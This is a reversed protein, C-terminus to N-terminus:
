NTKPKAATEIQELMSKIRANQPDIQLARHLFSRAEATRGQSSYIFALNGYAPVFKPDLALVRLFYGSAEDYNASAMALNASNNLASIYDPDLRLARLFHQKATALAQQKHAFFEGLANHAPAYSPQAASAKRFCDLAAAPQDLQAYLNGLQTLAAANEPLLRLVARYAEVAEERRAMKELVMALQLHALANQPAIELVARFQQLAEELRGRYFYALGLRYFGEENQPDNQLGNRMLALAREFYVQDKNATDYFQLYAMGLRLDAAADKEAFFDKLAPLASAGAPQQAAPEKQIWHETFNVHVVDTTKGQPMHCAVCDGNADHQARPKSRSLVALSHCSVCTENFFSRAVTQVPQHPNHCTICVLKGNSKTYCASLALREGHSAVRLDGAPLHDHVYVSRVEQLRMGPRFDNMRKGSKLIGVVGQLHCQFCVEMQLAPPLRRPNVITRDIEKKTSDSYKAQYRKAVHLEGPGHCRECGIGHPVEAYRNGSYPVYEAYSNHCNMCGATIPRSFRYNLYGYGPSLGWSKKQTYWTLPMEYLFGNEETLYTRAHNGSGIVYDIKRALEHTRQGKEDLRYEIQHLAEGKAIVEYRLNSRADYVPQNRALDEIHSSASPPYFSRGMGTQKFSKFIESHCLACDEDGVYKTKPDLNLFDLQATAVAIASKGAEGEKQRCACLAFALVAFFVASAAFSKSYRSM